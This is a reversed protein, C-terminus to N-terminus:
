GLGINTFPGHTSIDNTLYEALGRVGGESYDDGPGLGTIM